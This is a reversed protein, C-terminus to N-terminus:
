QWRQTTLTHMKHHVGCGWTMYMRHCMQPHHVAHQLIWVEIAESRVPQFGASHFLAHFGDDAQQLTSICYSPVAPHQAAAGPAPYPSSDFRDAEHNPPHEMFFDIARELQWEMAELYNEAVHAPADTIGCFQAVVDSHDM